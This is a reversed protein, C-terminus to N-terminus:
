ARPKATYTTTATTTLTDLQKRGAHGLRQWKHTKNRKALYTGAMLKSCCLQRSWGIAGQFSQGCVLASWATLAIGFLLIAYLGILLQITDDARRYRDVRM